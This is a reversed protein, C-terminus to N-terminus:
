EFRIEGKFTSDSEKLPVTYGRSLIVRGHFVTGSPVVQLTPCNTFNVQHYFESNAGITALAICNAFTAGGRFKSGAPVETLSTCNKFNAWGPIVMGSPLESLKTCGEFRAEFEFKTGKRIAELSTCEEFSAVYKFITGASIETLSSCGKFNAWKDFVTGEAIKRLATCGEFDAEEKFIIGTPIEKIVAKKVEKIRPDRQYGFNEIKRDCELLFRIERQDLTPDLFTKTGDSNSRFCKQYIATLFKMDATAQKFKEFGPLSGGKSEAIELLEPEVEQNPNVGRIEAVKGKAMRIGIRPVSYKDNQDKTFFVYFDGAALHSAAAGEATCWGTGKGKLSNELLSPDGGQEFKVWEGEISIRNQPACLHTLAFGYLTSFRKQDLRERLLQTASEDLSYASLDASGSLAKYAFALAEANFEPFSALTTSSRKNFSSTESRLAGMGGLSRIVLYRYWDPYQSDNAKLYEIWPKLSERQLAGKEKVLEVYRERVKSFDMYSIEAGLGQDIMRTRESEYYGRAVKEILAEDSTNLAYANLLRRELRSRASEGSRHTEESNILTSLRELYKEIRIAEEPLPTDKCARKVSRSAALDGFTHNLLSIGDEKSQVPNSM